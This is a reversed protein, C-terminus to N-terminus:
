LPTLFLHQLTLRDTLCLIAFVNSAPDEGDQRQELQNSFAEERSGLRVFRRLLEMVDARNILGHNQDLKALYYKTLELFQSWPILSRRGLFIFIDRLDLL